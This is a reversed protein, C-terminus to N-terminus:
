GEVHARINSMQEDWGKIHMAYAEARRADPVANFGTEILALETEDELSTLRFEVLTPTEASYDMAPDIAYPHWRYSFLAPKEMREIEAEWRIHEYGPYTMYGESRQGPVFPDNIKVMFWSGFQESDTLAQWVEEIPAKLRISKEIRDNM